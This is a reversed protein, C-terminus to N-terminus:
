AAFQDPTMVGGGTELDPLKKELARNPYIRCSPIRRAIGAFLARSAYL